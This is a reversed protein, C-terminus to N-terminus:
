CKKEREIIVGVGDAGSLAKGKDLKLKVSSVAFEQIIIKCVEEALTEVLEFKTNKVFNIICKSIAKYDLADKINDSQAANKIDFKMEIDLMISQRIKKEWDYVGIVTDITLGKIFVIDM